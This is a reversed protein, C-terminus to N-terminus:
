PSLTGPACRSASMKRPHLHLPPPSGGAMWTGDVELEDPADRILRITEHRTLHLLEDTM